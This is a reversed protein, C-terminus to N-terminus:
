RPRAPVIRAILTLAASVVLARDHTVTYAFRRELDPGTDGLDRAVLAAAFHAGLVIVTWEGVLPDDATLTAGHVGPAPQTSLDAGLAAVFPLVRALETYRRLTDRSFHRAHQFAALLLPPLTMSLGRQELTHSIPLLLRKTSVSTPREAAVVDYPTTLPSPKPVGVPTPLERVPGFATPLPAPRGFLWGQGVTAGLVRATELDDPTEIGEAVVSAGSEEAYARVANATDAIVGSSYGRLIGMDLKVVDPRLLPILVLSAPHAGVDDLAVRAGRSRVREAASLLTAVDHAVNRETLEMTIPIGHRQASILLDLSRGELAVPEVNVFLSLRSPWPERSVTELAVSLCTEDLDHLRGVRRAEDLMEVPSEWFTGAPGRSLAEFAVLAGSELDVLPQFVSRVLRGDIVDHISPETPAPLAASVAPESAPSTVHGVVPALM